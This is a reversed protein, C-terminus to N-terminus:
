AYHVHTQFNSVFSQHFYVFKSVKKRVSEVDDFPFKKFEILFPFFWDVENHKGVDEGEM